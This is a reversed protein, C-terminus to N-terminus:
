SAERASQGAWAVTLRKTSEITYTGESHVFIQGDNDDPASRRTRGCRYPQGLRTMGNEEELGAGFARRAAERRANSPHGDRLEPLREPHAFV